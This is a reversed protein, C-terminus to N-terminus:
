LVGNLPHSEFPDGLELYVDLVAYSKHRGLQKLRTPHVGRDMGTSLAGRKLSHGGVAAPDFGANAARAQVIRAVTGADIAASGVRPLPTNCGSRGRPPTWIRRFVAGETIAAADLWARLARVPCLATTGYPIAVTVGRGTREGKSHPLTLRLGRECPELHEVRIAALEARRLAGAFGLLM